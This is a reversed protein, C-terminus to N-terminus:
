KWWSQQLVQEVLTEKGPAKQILHEHYVEIIRATLVLGGAGAFVLWQWVQYGHSVYWGIGAGVLWVVWAWLFLNTPHQMFVRVILTSVKVAVFLGFLTITAIL